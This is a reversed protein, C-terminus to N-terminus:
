GGFNINDDSWVLDWLDTHIEKDIIMNIIYIDKDQLINKLGYYEEPYEELITLAGNIHFHYYVDKFIAKCVTGDLVCDSSIIELCGPVAKYIKYLIHQLQINSIPNNIFNCRTIIYKAIYINNM